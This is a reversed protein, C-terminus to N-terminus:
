KAMSFLKSLSRSGSIPRADQQPLQRPFYAAPAAPAEPAIAQQAPVQVPAVPACGGPCCAANGANGANCAGNVCGDCTNCCGDVIQYGCRSLAREAERRVGKDCDALACTLASTLEASCCCHRRLQQEIENAATHRVGPDADNLSYIFATM